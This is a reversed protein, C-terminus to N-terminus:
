DTITNTIDSTATSTSSFTACAVPAGATTAPPAVAAFALAIAATVDKSTM